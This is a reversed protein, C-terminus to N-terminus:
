VEHFTYTNGEKEIYSEKSYYKKTIPNVETKLYNKEMLEGIYIKNESCADDWICQKASEILRKEAVEKIHSTHNYSVKYFTYLIMSFLILVITLLVWKSNKM